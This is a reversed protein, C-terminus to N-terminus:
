TITSVTFHGQNQRRKERHKSRLFRMDSPSLKSWNPWAFTPQHEADLVGLEVGLRLARHWFPLTGYSEFLALEM